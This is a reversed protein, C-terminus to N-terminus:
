IEQKANSRKLHAPVFGQAVYYMEPSARRTAIPRFPKVKTFWESLSKRFCTEESGAFIKCVFTGGNRLIKQSFRFSMDALEMIRVHNTEREGTTNPAMDSLVVDAEQSALAYQLQRRTYDDRMDGRIFIAGPIMDM